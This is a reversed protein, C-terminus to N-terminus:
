GILGLGRLAVRGHEMLFCVPKGRPGPVTIPEPTMQSKADPATLQVASRPRVNPRAFVEDVTPLPLDLLARRRCRAASRRAPNALFRQRSWRRAPAGLRSAYCFTLSVDSASASPSCTPPSGITIRQPALPSASPSASHTPSSFAMTF